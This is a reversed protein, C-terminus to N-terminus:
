RLNSFNTTKPKNVVPAEQAIGKFRQHRRSIKSAWNATAYQMWEERHSLCYVNGHVRLFDRLRRRELPYAAFEIFFRIWKM